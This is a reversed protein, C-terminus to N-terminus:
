EGGDWLWLKRDLGGSALWRGDRSCTVSMVADANGKLSLVEEGTAADGVKAITEWGGM